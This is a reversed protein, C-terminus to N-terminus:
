SPPLAARWGAQLMHRLEEVLSKMEPKVALNVNEDNFFVVPETHNYLETGWIDDFHPTATTHDFGYWETFRYSDVRITYGMVAESTGPPFSPKNPITHLGVNPRPYQSFAAKKWQKQPNNLLPVVSTGEVCTLPKKNDVPCVPPVELGALETVSPFIDILEVLAKTRMGQDTVGPVRIMFPVHTADEFNTFKCWHNHEGLQWGHDAWLVIVTDDVFGQSQLEALVKGIQADTYSVCAYYARRIEKAKSDPLHCEEGSLSANVDTNCATFNPFLPKVDTYLDLVPCVARAIPPFDTPVNPNDALKIQDAPPYKDFYKSPAYFPVHPKHFGVALFFPRNDGKSQNQKLEQLTKLANVAIQGDPLQNDEFGDFSRWSASHNLPGYEQELPSHYYPLSWSYNKDDFGNPPGPHFIKGMGVSVYGNDKFYQPITTANTFDRWYEENSITWVHNTDPRRGTLLSTRSPSCVAVQCYAREFVLSKSALSDFNPTVVQAHGYTGLETRLDDVAIFLVNKLKKPQETQKELTLCDVSSTLSCLFIVTWSWGKM